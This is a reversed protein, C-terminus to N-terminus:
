IRPALVQVKQICWSLDLSSVTMGVVLGYANRLTLVVERKDSPLVSAFGDADWILQNKTEQSTANRIDEGAQINTGLGILRATERGVNVHDGTIMKVSICARHLSEITASTDERPPDLMPM